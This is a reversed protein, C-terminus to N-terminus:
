FWLSQFDHKVKRQDDLSPQDGRFLVWLMAAGDIVGVNLAPSAVYVSFMLRNNLTSM